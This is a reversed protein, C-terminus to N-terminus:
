ARLFSALGAGLLRNAVRHWVFPATMIRRGAPGQVSLAAKSLLRLLDVNRQVRAIELPTEGAETRALVDAGAALLLRVAETNGATVAVHLATMGEDDKSHLPAAAQLLLRVVDPHKNGA